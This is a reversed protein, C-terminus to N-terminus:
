KELIIEFRDNPLDKVVGCLLHERREMPIDCEEGSSTRLYVRTPTGNNRSDIQIRLEKTNEDYSVFTESNEIDELRNVLKSESGVSRQGSSTAAAEFLWKAQAANLQEMIAKTDVIMISIIASNVDASVMESEGKSLSSNDAYEVASLVAMYIQLQEYCEECEGIHQMQVVDKESFPLDEVVLTALRLLDDNSLHM